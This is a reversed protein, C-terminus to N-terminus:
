TGGRWLGPKGPHAETGSGGCLRGGIVPMAVARLSRDEGRCAAHGRTNGRQRDRRVAEGGPRDCDVPRRGPLGSRGWARVAGARRIYPGAEAGDDRDTRAHFLRM